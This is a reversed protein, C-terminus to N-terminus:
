DREEASTAVIKREVVILTTVIIVGALCLLAMPVLEAPEPPLLVRETTQWPWLARLSGLMLGAMVILTVRRANELLWELAVVFSSLGILAGLAFVALYGFDRENVAAITPQYLGLTLLLFSGSVGPLVLACIAVAAAILVQWLAPDAAALPPFSMLWFVVAASLVMVMWERASVRSGVMQLPVAISALILGLFVARTAEPYLTILPELLAAAIVVATVMGAGIVVLRLWPLGKVERWASARVSPRVIAAVGRFLTSASGILTSYVGTILAITGGSVGPIVEATGILGGRVLDLVPLPIRARKKTM